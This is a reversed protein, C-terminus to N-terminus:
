RRSARAAQSLDLSDPCALKGWPPERGWEPVKPADEIVQAHTLAAQQARTFHPIPGDEVLDQADLLGREGEPSQRAIFGLSSAGSGPPRPGRCSSWGGSLDQNRRRRPALCPAGRDRVALIRAVEDLTFGLAVARRVLRVRIGADAPYERYGNASRPAKALLGKQEYHRLTDPSV